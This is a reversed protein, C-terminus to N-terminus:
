STIADGIGNVSYVRLYDISMTSSNWGSWQNYTSSLDSIANNFILFIPENFPWLDTRVSV